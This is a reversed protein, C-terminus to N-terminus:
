SASGAGVFSQVTAPPVTLKDITPGAVPPWSTAVADQLLPV